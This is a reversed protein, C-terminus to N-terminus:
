FATVLFLCPRRFCSHFERGFFPHFSNFSHDKEISTSNPHFWFIHPISNGVSNISRSPLAVTMIISFHIFISPKRRSRSQKSPIGDNSAYGLECSGTGGKLIDPANLFSQSRRRNDLDSCERCIQNIVSKGASVNSERQLWYCISWCWPNPAFRTLIPCKLGPM